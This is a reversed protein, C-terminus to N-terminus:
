GILTFLCDIIQIEVYINHKQWKIILKMKGSTLIVFMGALYLSIILTMMISFICARVGVAASTSRRIVIIAEDTYYSCTTIPILLQYQYKFFFGIIFSSYTYYSAKWYFEIWQKM